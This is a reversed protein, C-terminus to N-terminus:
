RTLRPRDMAVLSKEIWYPGLVLIDAASSYFARIAERITQVIPEGRDNFSTNIVMPVGTRRFFADIVAAYLPQETTSVTQPRTTGDIHVVGPVRARWFIKVRYAQIMFPARDTPNFDELVEQAFAELIAPGFPRWPERRKVVINLRDRVDLCRPDALISRAGLARPGFESRDQYWMVIRGEDIACATKEPLDAPMNYAIGWKHLDDLPDEVIKPGLCLNPMKHAVEDGLDRAVQIAAGFGVGADSAVPQVFLHEVFRLERLLLNLKCNLAIGGAFCLKSVGVASVARQALGSIARELVTQAAWAIEVYITDIPDYARRPPVKLIEQLRAVAGSLDLLLGKDLINMVFPSADFSTGEITVYRLLTELVGSNGTGYSALAMTKGEGEFGRFGLFETIAAYFYGLSNPLIDSAIRHLGKETGAWISVTEIEGVGDAVIVAAEQFGSPYFASAAHALHHEVFRIPIDKEGLHAQIRQAAQQNDQFSFSRRLIDMFGISLDILANRVEGINRNITRRDADYALSQVASGVRMAELSLRQQWAEPSYGVAVCDIDDLCVGATALCATIANDPFTGAAGKKRVFREEEAAAVLWGDSVLCAAPDHYNFGGFGPNLGLIHRTM